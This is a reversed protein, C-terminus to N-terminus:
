IKAKIDAFREIEETRMRIQKIDAEDLETEYTKEFDIDDIATLPVRFSIDKLKRKSLGTESINNIVANDFSFERYGKNFDDLFAPTVYKNIYNSSGLISTRSSSIKYDTKPRFSLNNIQWNSVGAITKNQYIGFGVSGYIGGETIAQIGRMEDSTIEISNSGVSYTPESAISGTFVSAVIVAPGVVVYLVIHPKQGVTDAVYFSFNFDLYWSSSVDSDKIEGNITTTTAASYLGIGSARINGLDPPDPISFNEYAVTFTAGVQVPSGNAWTKDSLIDDSSSFGDGLDPAVVFWDSISDGPYSDPDIQCQIISHYFNTIEQEKPNSFLADPFIIDVGQFDPYSENQPDAVTLKELNYIESTDYISIKNTWNVGLYNRFDISTDTSKTLESIHKLRFKKDSTILWFLNLGRENSLYEYLKKWTINCITAANSKQIENELVFDSAGFLLLYKHYTSDDLWTFSSSDFTITSDIKSFIYKIAETILRARNYIVYDESYSDIAISYFSYEDYAYASELLNVEIEQNKLVTEYQDVVVVKLSAIKTKDNYEGDEFNVTGDLEPYRKDKLGKNVVVPVSINSTLGVIYDYDGNENDFILEGDFSYRDIKLVEDYNRAIGFNSLKPYVYRANNLYFNM